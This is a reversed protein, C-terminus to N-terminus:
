AGATKLLVYILVGTVSVYLWIPFTYRALQRHRDIRGSLSLFFTMLIMPLGIISLAIHSILVVLYIPRLGNDEPFVSDGHLYHHLIYSVLFVTSCVFAAIMWRMHLVERKKRIALVGAVLCFASSGNLICNLLPLFLFAEEGGEPQKKFYIIWVLFGVAALSVGVITTWVYRLNVSALEM